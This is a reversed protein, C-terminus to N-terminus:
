RRIMISFRKIKGVDLNEEDVPRGRYFAKFEGWNARFYQKVPGKHHGEEELEEARFKSKFNWEWSIERGPEGRTICDKM